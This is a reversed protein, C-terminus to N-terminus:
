YGLLLLDNKPHDLEKLLKIHSSSVLTNYMSINNTHNVVADIIWGM